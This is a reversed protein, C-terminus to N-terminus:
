LGDNEVQLLLPKRWVRQKIHILTVTVQQKSARFGLRRAERQLQEHAAV